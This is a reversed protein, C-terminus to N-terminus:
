KSIGALKAWRGTEFGESLNTSAPRTTTSSSGVVKRDANEKVLRSPSGLTKTLSEYVLKVERETKVEDIHEIISAKQKNTLSESQLLKNTYLLKANFLNMEALKTRLDKVVKQETPQKSASNKLSEKQLLSASEALQKTFKKCRAVSDNFRRAVHTYEEKIAAFKKSLGKAKASTAAAKLLKGRSKAREQLRKEFHVRRQVSEHAKKDSASAEDEDFNDLEGDAEDLPEDTDDGEDAEDLSVDLPEGEDKGGGFAALKGPGNGKVGPVAEEKISRMRAIERRLMGEDIEVVTDDSLEMAEDVDMPEEEDDVSLEDGEEPVESDDSLSEDDFDDSPELEDPPLDGDMEDEDGTVLDVGVSDLDLEDPLGTLKLTVDEENMPRKNRKLMKQEQLKNLDKYYTELTVEYSNKTSKDNISEHVYEYMDEVHGIMKNIQEHLTLLQAGSECYHKFNEIIKGVNILKSEFYALDTKSHGNSVLSSLSDISDPSLQYEQEVNDPPSITTDEDHSQLADLDLTVHGTEDPASIASTSPDNNNLSPEQTLVPTPVAPLDDSLLQGEPSVTGPASHIEEDEDFDSDPNEKLLQQEIFDRIRPTVVELLARKANDEAVEKLKKVDAIAEDYLQKSM